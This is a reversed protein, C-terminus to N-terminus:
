KHVQQRRWQGGYRNRIPCRANWCNEMKVETHDQSATNIRSETQYPLEKCTWTRAGKEAITSRVKIQIAITWRKTSKSLMQEYQWNSRCYEKHRRSMTKLANGIRKWNHVRQRRWQGGDRNRIPSHAHWCNEMHHWHAKSECHQHTIWDPVAIRRM